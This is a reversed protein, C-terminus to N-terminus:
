GSRSEKVSHSCFKVLRFFAEKGTKLGYTPIIRKRLNRLMFAAAAPLPQTFVSGSWKGQSSKASNHAYFVAPNKNKQIVYPLVQFKKLNKKKKRGPPPNPLNKHSASTTM